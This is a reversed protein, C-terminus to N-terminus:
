GLNEPGIVRFLFPGFGESFHELIHGYPLDNWSSRSKRLVSFSKWGLRLSYGSQINLEPYDPM